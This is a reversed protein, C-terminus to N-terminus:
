LCTIKDITKGKNNMLFLTCTRAILGEFNGNKRLTIELVEFNELTVQLFEANKYPRSIGTIIRGNALSNIDPVIVKKYYVEEAEFVWHETPVVPAKQDGRKSSVGQENELYSVIKAYM